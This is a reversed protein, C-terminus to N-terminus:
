QANGRMVNEHLSKNGMKLQILNYLKPIEKRGLLVGKLIFQLNGVIITLKDGNVKVDTICSYPISIDQVGHYHWYLIPPLPIIVFSSLRSFYIRKNTAVTGVPLIKSVATKGNSTIKIVPNFSLEVDEGEDKVFRHINSIDIAENVIQYGKSNM